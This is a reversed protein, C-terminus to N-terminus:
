LAMADDVLTRSTRDEGVSILWPSKAGSSASIEPESMSSLSTEKAYVPLSFTNSFSLRVILDPSVVPITPAVPEPM